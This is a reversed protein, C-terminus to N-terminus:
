SSDSDRKINGNLDSLSGTLVKSLYGHLDLAAILAEGGMKFVKTTITYLGHSEVKSPGCEKM